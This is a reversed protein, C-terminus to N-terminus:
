AVNADGMENVPADAGTIREYQEILASHALWDEHFKMHCPRSVYAGHRDDYAEVYEVKYEDVALSVDATVHILIAIELDPAQNHNHASWDERMGPITASLRLKM